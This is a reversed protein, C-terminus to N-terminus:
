PKAAAAPASPAAAPQLPAIKVSDEVGYAGYTVIREGATLGTLIEAVTDTRGGVSVPRAHAIGGADVVFVKFGDGEPVLAELPIIVASPRTVVAIQGYVTEGIRLPRRTTPAQARIPVSRSASDVAGGVDAVTAVGLAEGTASQGATLTVKAGPRIRAADAPTVNYLLDLASPDAIEVLPQNSDVSAGLVATM